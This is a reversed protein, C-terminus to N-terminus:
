REGRNAEDLERIAAGSLRRPMRRRLRDYYDVGSVAAVISVAAPFALSAGTVFRLPASPPRWGLYETLVDVVLVGATVTIWLLHRKPALRPRAVLAGLALGVYIGLCRTCVAGFALSRAEERHCQFAFWVDLARGFAELGPVGESLAPVFPAVGGFILLARVAWGLAERARETM